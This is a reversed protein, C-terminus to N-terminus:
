KVAEKKYTRSLGHHRKFKQFIHQSIEFKEIIQRDTMGEEHLLKYYAPTLGSERIDKRKRVPYTAATQPDWGSTYIRSQLTSYSIGNSQALTIIARNMKVPEKTESAAVKKPKSALNDLERGCALLKETVDEGQQEREYLDNMRAYIAKRKRKIDDM